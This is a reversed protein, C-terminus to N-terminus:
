EAILKYIGGSSGYGLAYLEGQADQAFSSIQQGSRVLEAHDIVANGDYRIGWVIGSCFDGFVYAGRLSQIAAGRYVFGGTV